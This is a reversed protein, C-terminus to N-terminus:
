DSNEKDYVSFFVSPPFICGKETSAYVCGNDPYIIIWLTHPHQNCNGGTTYLLLSVTVWWIHIFHINISEMMASLWSRWYVILAPPVNYQCQLQESPQYFQSPQRSATRLLSHHNHLAVSLQICIETFLLTHNMIFKTTHSLEQLILLYM